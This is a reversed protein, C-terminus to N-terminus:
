FSAKGPCIKSNTSKRRECLKSSGIWPVLIVVRFSPLGRESKDCDQYWILDRRCLTRETVVTVQISRCALGCRMRIEPWLNGLSSANNWKFSLDRVLFSHNILSRDLLVSECIRWHNVARKQWHSPIDPEPLCAHLVNRTPQSYSGLCELPFKVTLPRDVCPDTVLKGQITLICTTRSPSELSIHAIDMEEEEQGECCLMFSLSGNSKARARDATLSAGPSIAAEPVTLINWHQPGIQSGNFQLKKHQM